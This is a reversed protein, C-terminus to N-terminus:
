PEMRRQWEAAVASDATEDNASKANAQQQRILSQIAQMVRDVFDVSPLQPQIQRLAKKIARLNAVARSLETSAAVAQEVDMAESVSLRGDIWESLRPDDLSLPNNSLNM